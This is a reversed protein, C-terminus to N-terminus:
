VLDEDRKRCLKIFKLLVGVIQWLNVLKSVFFFRFFLSLSRCIEVYSKCFVPSHRLSPRWTDGYTEMGKCGLGVYRLGHKQAARKLCHEAKSNLQGEGEAGAPGPRM